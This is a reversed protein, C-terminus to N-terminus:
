GTKGGAVVLEAIVQFIRFHRFARLKEALPTQIKLDDVTVVLRAV